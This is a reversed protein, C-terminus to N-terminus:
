TTQEVAKLAALCIALPATFAEAEHGSISCLWIDHECSLSVKHGGECAPSEIVEWASAIDSSYSRLWDGHGVSLVEWPGDVMNIVRHGMVKEAVLADLERGAVPQTM